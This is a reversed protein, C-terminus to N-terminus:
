NTETTLFDHEPHNLDYYAEHEYDEDDRNDISLNHLILCARCMRVIADEHHVRLGSKLTGFKM